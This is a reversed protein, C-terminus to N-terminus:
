TAHVSVTFSLFAGRIEETLNSIRHGGCWLQLLGGGGGGTCTTHTHTRVLLCLLIISEVDARAYTYMLVLGRACENTREHTIYM